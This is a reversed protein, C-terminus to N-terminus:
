VEYYKGISTLYVNGYDALTVKEKNECARFLEKYIDHIQQHDTRVYLTTGMIDNSPYDFGEIRCHILYDQKKM